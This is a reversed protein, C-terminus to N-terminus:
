PEADTKEGDYATLKIHMDETVDAHIGVIYEINEKLQKLCTSGGAPITERREEEGNNLLHITIEFENGNYFTLAGTQSTLKEDSYTIVYENSTSQEACNVSCDWKSIQPNEQRNSCAALSLTLICCIIFAIKKM